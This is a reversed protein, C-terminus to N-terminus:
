ASRRWLYCVVYPQINPHPQGGGTPQVMDGDYAYKKVRYTNWVVGSATDSGYDSLSM